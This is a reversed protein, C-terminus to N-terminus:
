FFQFINTERQNQLSKVKLVKLVKLIWARGGAEGERRGGGVRWPARPAAWSSCGLAAWRLGACGLGACGGKRGGLFDVSVLRWYM